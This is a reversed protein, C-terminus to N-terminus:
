YNPRFYKTIFLKVPQILEAWVDPAAVCCILSAAALINILWILKNEAYTTDGSFLTTAIQFCGWIAVIFFADLSM